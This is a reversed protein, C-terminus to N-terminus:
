LSIIPVAACWNLEADHHPESFKKQNVWRDRERVSSTRISIRNAYVVHNPGGGTAIFRDDGVTSLVTYGFTYCENIFENQLQSGRVM